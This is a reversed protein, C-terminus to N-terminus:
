VNVRYDSIQLNPVGLDKYNSDFRRKLYKGWNFSKYKPLCQDSTLEPIPGLDVWHGPSFFYPFSYREVNKNVVVRHEISQYKDNSYVQMVDGVNIVFAEPNPKVTIWEGDQCKVELGEVDGQLLITLAVTDKHRSVGLALEPAPCVPYHNMRFLSTRSSEFHKHTRCPPLGMSEVMLELLTFALKEAAEMYDECARLSPLFSPWQNRHIVSGTDDAEFDAPLEFFGGPAMDYVEKWDRVNKTLEGDNFGLPNDATRKVQLKMGRPSDFFKKAEDKLGQVITQPVGHNVVQFFGWEECARGVQQVISKREYGLSALDIVPIDRAFSESSGTALHRSPRHEPPVVFSADFGDFPNLGSGSLERDDSALGLIAEKEKQEEQASVFCHQRPLHAGEAVM